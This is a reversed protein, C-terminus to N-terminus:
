QCFLDMVEAHSSVQNAELVSLVPWMDENKKWAKSMMIMAHSEWHKWSIFWLNLESRYAPFYTICECSLFMKSLPAMLVIERCSAYTPHEISYWADNADNTDLLRLNYSYNWLKNLEELDHNIKMGM